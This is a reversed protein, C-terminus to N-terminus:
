NWGSIRFYRVFTKDLTPKGLSKGDMWIRREATRRTVKRVETSWRHWPQNPDNTLTLGRCRVVYRSLTRCREKFDHHNLYRQYTKAVLAANRMPLYHPGGYAVPTAGLALVSAALVTSV